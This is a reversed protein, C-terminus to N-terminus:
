TATKRREREIIRLRSELEEREVYCGRLWRDGTSRDFPGRGHLVRRNDFGLLDGPGLRVSTVFESSDGLKLALRLAAYFREADDISAQLPARLWPSWRAEVLEGDDDVVLFPAEHRYDTDIAKNFFTVPITTLADFAEPHDDRLFRTVASADSLRSEGGEADAVMCYLFQLGPMYERTDLDTHVPLELDTYANSTIDAAAAKTRVDFAHGFNTTRVPGIMEAVEHLMSERVPLGTVIGVGHTRIARLWDGFAPGPEHPPESGNGLMDAGDFTLDALDLDGRWHVVEPLALAEDSEVAWERLWGPDYVSETLGAAHPSWQVRIGGAATVEAGAIALDADIDTLQLQQERSDPHTTAPDVSNERLVLRHHTTRLGDDWIVAVGNPVLEVATVRRETPYENFDPVSTM